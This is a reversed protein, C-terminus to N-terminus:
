PFGCFQLFPPLAAGSIPAFLNYLPDPLLYPCSLAYRHYIMTLTSLLSILVLYLQACSLFLDSLYFVTCFPVLCKCFAHCPTGPRPCPLDHCIDHHPSQYLFQCTLISCSLILCPKLCPLRCPPPCPPTSYSPLPCLLYYCLVECLCHLYYPRTSTLSPFLVCFPLATGPQIPCPLAPFLFHTEQM